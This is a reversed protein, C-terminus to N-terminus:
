PAANDPRHAADSPRERSPGPPRETFASLLTANARMMERMYAMNAQAMNRMTEALQTYLAGSPMFRQQAALMDRSLQFLELPDRTSNEATKGTSKEPPKEPM